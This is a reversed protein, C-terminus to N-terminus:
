KKLVPRGTKLTPVDALAALFEADPLGVLLKIGARLLESKKVPRGLLTAHQKLADIVAYEAKPITFSDRVLKPKRIKEPAVAKPPQVPKQEAAPTAAAKPTVARKRTPLKAPVIPSAIKAKVPEPSRAKAPESTRVAVPAAASAPTVVPAPPAIKKPTAM